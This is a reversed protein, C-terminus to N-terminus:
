RRRLRSLHDLVEERDWIPLGGLHGLPRPLQGRGIMADITVRTVGVIEALIPKTVFRDEEFLLRLQTTTVLKKTM